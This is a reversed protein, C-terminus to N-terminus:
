EGQLRLRAFRRKGVRLIDGDAITTASMPDAITEGNISVGGQEILRRAQSNSDAFGCHRILKIPDIQPGGALDPSICVEPVDAPLQREAFVREFEAEAQTAAEASHYHAVIARAIEAKAKKPHARGEELDIEIKRVEEEPWDMLTQYYHCITGFRSLAKGDEDVTGDPISMLKGFM